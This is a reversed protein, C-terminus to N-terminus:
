SFYSNPVRGNISLEKFFSLRMLINWWGTWVVQRCEEEDGNWCASLDTKLGDFNFSKLVGSTDTHYQLCGPPATSEIMKILKLM